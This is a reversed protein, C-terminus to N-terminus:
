GYKKNKKSEEAQKRIVELAQYYELTTMKKPDKNVNQNIIICTEEFSKVFRVELGERGHYIKPKIQEFLFNDLKTLEENKQGKIIQELMLSSRKKLTNYYEKVQANDTM